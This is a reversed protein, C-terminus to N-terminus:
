CRESQTVTQLLIVYSVLSMNWLCLFFALHEKVKQESLTHRHKLRTQFIFRFYFELFVNQLDPPNNTLNKKERVFNLGYCYNVFLM